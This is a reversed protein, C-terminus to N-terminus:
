VTCSVGSFCRSLGDYVYESTQMGTATLVARRFSRHLETFQCRIGSLVDTTLPGLLNMEVDNNPSSRLLRIRCDAYVNQGPMPLYTAVGDACYDAEPNHPHLIIRTSNGNSNIVIRNFIKSFPSGPGIAIISNRDTDSFLDIGRSMGFGLDIGTRGLSGTILHFIFDYGQIQDPSSQLLELM